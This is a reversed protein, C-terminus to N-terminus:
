VIPSPGGTRAPVLRGLVFSTRGIPPESARLGGSGSGGHRQRRAAAAAARRQRQRRQQRLRTCRRMSQASSFLDGTESQSATEHLRRAGGGAARDRRSSGGRGSTLIRLHPPSVAHRNGSNTVGTRVTAGPDHLTQRTPSPLDGRDLFETGKPRTYPPSNAYQPSNVASKRPWSEVLRCIEGIM